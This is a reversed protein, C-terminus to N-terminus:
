KWCKNFLALLAEQMSPPLNRLLPYTVQDAGPSKKNGSTARLAWRLEHLTLDADKGKPTSLDTHAEKEMRDRRQNEPLSRTSSTRAFHRLFGEAKEEPTRLIGGDPDTLNRSPPNYRMKLTKLRNWAATLDTMDEESKKWFDLKAGAITRKCEANAKKMSVFADKTGEKLYRHYTRRKEQVAKLCADTWWPHGRRGNGPKVLPISHRAAALITTTFAENIGDISSDEDHHYSTSSPFAQYANWDARKLDLKSQTHPLHLIPSLHLTIAIPLHDSSM